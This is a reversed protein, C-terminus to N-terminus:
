ERHVDPPLTGTLDVVSGLTTLDLARNTTGRDLVRGTSADIVLYTKMVSPAPVYEGTSRSRHGARPNRFQGSM